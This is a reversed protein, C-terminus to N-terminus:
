SSPARRKLLFIVPFKPNQRFYYKAKLNSPHTVPFFWTSPQKHPDFRHGPSRIDKLKIRWGVVNRIVFTGAADTSVKCQHLVAKKAHLGEGVLIEEEVEMFVVAGPVPKSTQDVVKGYFTIPRNRLEVLKGEAPMKRRDDSTDSRLITEKEKDTLGAHKKGYDRKLAEKLSDPLAPQQEDGKATPTTQAVTPNAVWVVLGLAILVGAIGGLFRGKM